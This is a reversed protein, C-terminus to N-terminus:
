SRPLTLEARNNVVRVTALDVPQAGFQISGVADVAGIVVRFPPTGTVDIQDGQRKLAAVLRKGDADSIQVWCDGVFSMQLRNSEVAVVPQEPVVPASTEALEDAESLDPQATVASELPGTGDAVDTARGTEAETGDSVQYGDPAAGDPTAAADEAATQEPVSPSADPDNMEIADAVPESQPMEAQETADAPGGSVEPEGVDPALFKLAVAVVVSVLVLLLLTKAIRKKRRRRREITVLPNAEQQQEREQRLPELERDLDAILADPDLGVQKAYARVYGKLFLESDIQRHDSAEIAQIVSPRLHQADAVSAVSLGLRERARQLQQGVTEKEGSQAIDDSAM